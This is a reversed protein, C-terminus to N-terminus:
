LKTDWIYLLAYSQRCVTGLALRGMKSSLLADVVVVDVGVSMVVRLGKDQLSTSTALPPCLADLSQGVMEELSVPLMGSVLPIAGIATGDTRGQQQRSGAKDDSDDDDASHLGSLVGVGDEDDDNVDDPDDGPYCLLPDM